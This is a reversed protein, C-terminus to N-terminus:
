PEPKSLHEGVTRPHAGFSPEARFVEPTELGDKGKDFAQPAGSWGMVPRRGAVERYIRPTRRIGPGAM